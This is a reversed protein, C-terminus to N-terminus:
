LPDILGFDWKIIELKVKQKRQYDKHIQATFIKYTVNSLTIGRYNDCKMKDGKKYLPHIIGLKWEEPIKELCWIQVFLKHLRRWLITGGQKL